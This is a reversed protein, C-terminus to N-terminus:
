GSQTGVLLITFWLLLLLLVKHLKLFVIKSHNNQIEAPIVTEKLLYGGEVEKYGEQIQSATLNYKSQWPKKRGGEKKKKKKAIAITNNNKAFANQNKKALLATQNKKALATSCLCLCLCVWLATLHVLNKM